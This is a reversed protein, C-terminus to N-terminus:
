IDPAGRGQRHSFPLDQNPYDCLGASEQFDTNAGLGGIPPLPHAADGLLKVPVRANPSASDRVGNWSTTFNEAECIFFALASASEIDQDALVIRISDHWDTTLKVSLKASQAHTLAPLDGYNGEEQPLVDRRFILVWYM